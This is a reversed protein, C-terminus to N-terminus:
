SRTLGLKYFRDLFSNNTNVSNKAKLNTTRDQYTRTSKCHYTTCHHYKGNFRLIHRITSHQRFTLYCKDYQSVNKCNPSISAAYQYPTTTSSNKIYYYCEVTLSYYMTYFKM